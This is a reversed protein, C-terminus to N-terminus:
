YMPGAWKKPSAPGGRTALGEARARSASTAAASQRADSSSVPTRVETPAAVQVCRGCREPEAAVAECRLYAAHLASRDPRLLRGLALVVISRAGVRRVAAAASQARAGSVYLDDLLVVRRGALLDQASGPAVFAEPHPRMHGVPAGGRALLAPHWLARELRHAVLDSIGAVAQLPSGDPRATSPVPLVVDPRGGAVATLCAAHRSLFTDLLDHVVTGFHRRAEPVVSEKYGLLVTYLWGLRECRRVAVVPALEAGLRHAVQRCAFCASRGAPAPGCCVRCTGPGPGPLPFGGSPPHGHRPSATDM